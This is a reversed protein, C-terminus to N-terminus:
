GSSGYANMVRRLRAELHAPVGARRTARVREKLRREFEARSFCARCVRLHHEIARHAHGDLERDLYAYLQRLAEECTIPTPKAM